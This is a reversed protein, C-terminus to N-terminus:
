KFSSYPNKRTKHLFIRTHHLPTKAPRKAIKHHKLPPLDHHPQPPNSTLVHHKAAM